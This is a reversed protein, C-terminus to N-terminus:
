PRQVLQSLTKLSLSPSASVAAATEIVDLVLLVVLLAEVELLEEPVGVVLVDIVLGVQGVRVESVPKVVVRVLNVRGDLVKADVIIVGVLDIANDIGRDETAALDAKGHGDRSDVHDVLVPVGREDVPVVVVVAPNLSVPALDDDATM